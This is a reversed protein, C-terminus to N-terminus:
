FTHYYEHLFVSLLRCTWYLPPARVKKRYFVNRIEAPVNNVKNQNEESGEPVHWSMVEFKVV